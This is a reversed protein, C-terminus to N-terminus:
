DGDSSPNEGTFEYPLPGDGVFYVGSAVVSDYIEGFAARDIQTTEHGEYAFQIPIQPSFWLTRAVDVGEVNNALVVAFSRGEIFANRTLAELHALQIDSLGISTTEGGYILQAM